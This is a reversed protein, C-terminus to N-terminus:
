GLNNGISGCGTNQPAKIWGSLRAVRRKLISLLHSMSHYQENLDQQDINDLAYYKETYLFNSLKDFRVELDAAEEKLRNLFDSM